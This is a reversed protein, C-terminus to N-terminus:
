ARCNDLPLKLPVSLAFAYDDDNSSKWRSSSVDHLPKTPAQLSKRNGEQIGKKRRRMRTESRLIFRVRERTRDIRPRHEWTEVEVRWWRWLRSADGKGLSIAWLPQATLEEQNLLGVQVSELPSFILHPLFTLYITSLFSQLRRERPNYCQGKEMGRKQEWVLVPTWIPSHAELLLIVSLRNAIQHTWRKRLRVFRHRWNSEGGVEGWTEM